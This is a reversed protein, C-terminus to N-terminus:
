KSKRCRKAIIASSFRPTGFLLNKMKKNLKSFIKQRNKHEESYTNELLHNLHSYEKLNLNDNISPFLNILDTFFADYINKKM